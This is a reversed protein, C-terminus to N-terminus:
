KSNSTFSKSPPSKNTNSGSGGKGPEKGNQQQQQLVNFNLANKAPNSSSRMPGLVTAVSEQFLCNTRFGIYLLNQCRRSVM